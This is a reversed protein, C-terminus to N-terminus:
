QRVGPVDSSRRGGPRDTPQEEAELKALEGAVFQRIARHLLVDEDVGSRSALDMLALREPWRIFVRRATDM